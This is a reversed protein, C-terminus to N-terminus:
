YEHPTVEDVEAFQIQGDDRVCYIARYQRNLRISRQGRRKGKLPEDHFGPVKRTMELGDLAVM